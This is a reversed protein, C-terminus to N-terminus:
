GDEGPGWGRGEMMRNWREGPDEFEADGPDFYESDFEGGIWESYMEHNPHGPNKMAELFDEYGHTGGVDEPPCARKGALCVPYVTGKKRALVKELRIRHEWGDGFDYEDDATPNERSFWDAIRENTEPLVVVSSPYDEDPTAIYVEKGSARYRMCFQHLHCDAWGFAGAIAVHLDWFSYNAPVQVRRWIRPSTDKLTIKFQYVENFEGGPIYWPPGSIGTDLAPASGLAESLSIFRDFLDTKRVTADIPLRPDGYDLTVLGFRGLFRQFTRLFYCRAILDHGRGYAVPEPPFFGYPFADRYKRFYFEAQRPEDGYRSVLFLSFMSGEQVLWQDPYGDEYAWNYVGAHTLFLHTYVLPANSGNLFQEGLETLTIRTTDATTLDALRTIANIYHLYPADLESRVPIKRFMSSAGEDEYLGADRLERSLARPLNGNRTLKVPQRSRIMSLYYSVDGLLKTAMVIEPDLRFDVVILSRSSGMGYYLLDCAQETTLGDFFGLACVEM